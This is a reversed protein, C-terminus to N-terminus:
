RYSYRLLRGRFDFGPPIFTKSCILLTFAAPRLFTFISIESSHGSIQGFERMRCGDFRWRGIGSRHPLCPVRRFTGSAMSDVTAVSTYTTYIEANRLLEIIPMGPRNDVFCVKPSGLHDFDSGGFHYSLADGLRAPDLRM